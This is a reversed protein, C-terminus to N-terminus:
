ALGQAKDMADETCQYLCDGVMGCRAQDDPACAPLPYSVAPVAEERVPFLNRIIAASRKRQEALQPGWFPDRELQERTPMAPGWIRLSARASQLRFGAM